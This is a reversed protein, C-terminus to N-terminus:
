VVKVVSSVHGTLSLVLEKVLNAEGIKDTSRLLLYLLIAKFFCCCPFLVTYM